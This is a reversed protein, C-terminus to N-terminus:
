WSFALVPSSKHELSGWPGTGEAQVGQPPGPSLASLRSSPRLSNVPMGVGM